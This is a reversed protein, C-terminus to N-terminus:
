VYLFEEPINIEEGIAVTVYCRMAAELETKGFSSPPSLFASGKRSGAFFEEETVSGGSVIKEREKIPGGIAWDGCYNPAEKSYRVPVGGWIWLAERASKSQYAGGECVAVAYNLAKRSLKAVKAKM